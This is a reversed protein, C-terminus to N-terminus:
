AEYNQLREQLLTRAEELEMGTVDIPLTAYYKLTGFPKPVTFKDWSNFQWYKTPLMRILVIKTGTKQAMVIIGDAVQHRPGKPGDPTIGIDYGDKLARIGQILVKAANRNTSGAITDLGFYEITKSILQGDFHSSILVKAHPVKRYRQYLYPLMLLEGHWCAFILPTDSEVVAPELEKKNTLYILRIFLAGLFPVIILAIARFLKKGM